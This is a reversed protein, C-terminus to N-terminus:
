YAKGFCLEMTDFTEPHVWRGRFGRNKNFIYGKKEAIKALKKIATFELSEGLCTRSEVLDTNVLMVEYVHWFNTLKM